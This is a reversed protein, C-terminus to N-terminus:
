GLADWRLALGEVEPVYGSHAVTGAFREPHSLSLAYSMVTGMSFGMLFLKGTDVDHLQALTDVFNILQSYSHQFMSPDPAGVERM